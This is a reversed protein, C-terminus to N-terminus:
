AVEERRNSPTNLVARAIGEPDADIPYPWALRKRDTM